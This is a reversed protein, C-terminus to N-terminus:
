RDGARYVGARFPYHAFLLDPLDPLLHPPDLGLCRGRGVGLAGRALLALAVDLRTSHELAVCGICVAAVNGIAAALQTRTIRATFDAIKSWSANGPNTRVIGAFTAATASPQKTALVLGFVQLLVFSIAYNTGTLFGEM